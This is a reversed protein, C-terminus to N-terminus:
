TRGCVQCNARDAGARVVGFARHRGHVVDLGVIVHDMGLAGLEQGCSRASRSGWLRRTAAVDPAWM